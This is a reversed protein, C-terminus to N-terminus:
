QIAERHFCETRAPERGECSLGYSNVDHRQWALSLGLRDNLV